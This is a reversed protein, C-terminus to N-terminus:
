NRDGFDDHLGWSEALIRNLDEITAGFLNNSARVSTRMETALAKLAPLSPIKRKVRSPVELRAMLTICQDLLPVPRSNSLLDLLKTTIAFRGDEAYLNHRLVASMTFACALGHPVGFHATIPYSISHCLATRTHSIALGALLSAESM